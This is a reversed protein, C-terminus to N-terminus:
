AIAWGFFVAGGALGRFKEDVSFAELVEGRCTVEQLMKRSVRVFGEHFVASLAESNGLVELAVVSVESVAISAAM